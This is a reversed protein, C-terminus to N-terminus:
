LVVRVSRMTGPAMDFAVVKGNVAVKETERELVDTIAAAQVERFLELQVPLQTGTLNQLRVIIGNGDQAQKVAQM